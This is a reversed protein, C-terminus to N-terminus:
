GPCAFEYFLNPFSPSAMLQRSFMFCVFGKAQAHLNVPLGLSVLAQLLHRSLVFVILVRLRPM